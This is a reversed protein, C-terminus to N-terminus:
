YNINNLIEPKWKWIGDVFWCSINLGFYKMIKGLHPFYHHSFGSLFPFCSLSLSVSYLLPWSLGIRTLLFLRSTISGSWTPCSALPLGSCFGPSSAQCHPEKMKNLACKWVSTNFYLTVNGLWAYICRTIHVAEFLSILLISKSVQSSYVLMGMFSDPDSYWLFSWKIGGWLLM